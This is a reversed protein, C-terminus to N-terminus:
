HSHAEKARTRKTGCNFTSGTDTGNVSNLFMTDTDLLEGPNSNM